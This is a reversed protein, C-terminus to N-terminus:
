TKNQFVTLNSSYNSRKSDQKQANTLAANLRPHIKKCWSALGKKMRQSIGQSNPCKGSKGTPVPIVWCGTHTLESYQRRYNKRMTRRNAKPLKRDRPSTMVWSFAKLAQDASRQLGRQTHREAEPCEAKHARYNSPSGPSQTGDGRWLSDAPRGKKHWLRSCKELCHASAAIHSVKNELERPCQGRWQRHGTAQM